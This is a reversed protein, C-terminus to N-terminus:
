MGEMLEELQETREDAQDAASHAGQIVGAAGSPAQTPATLQDVANEFSTNEEEAEVEEQAGGCATLALSATLILVFIRKM